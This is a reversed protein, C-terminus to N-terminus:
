RGSIQFRNQVPEVIHSLGIELMVEPLIDLTILRMIQIIHPVVVPEISDLTLLQTTRLMNGLMIHVITPMYFTILEQDLMIQVITSTLLLDEIDLLSTRM